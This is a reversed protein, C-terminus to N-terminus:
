EDILIKIKYDNIKDKEYHIDNFNDGYLLRKWEDNDSKLDLLDHDMDDILSEIKFDKDKENELHTNDFLDGYLLKKWEENDSKLDFVDDDDDGPPSSYVLAPEDTFRELIPNIIDIDTTPSSDTLPDWNLLYKIERLDAEPDFNDDENGISFPDLLALKDAFEELLSVSTEILSSSPFSNGRHASTDWENHHATMNEILDYCEEPRRKMFTGWRDISLKYRGWAEFLSEDSLQRFNSIENRLKTVMSPPFYKSLFKTAM